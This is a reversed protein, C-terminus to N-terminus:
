GIGLIVDSGTLGSLSVTPYQSFTEPLRFKFTTNLDLGIYKVM